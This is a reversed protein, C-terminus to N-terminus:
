AEAATEPTAPTEPETKERPVAEAGSKLDGTIWEFLRGREETSLSFGASECLVAVNRAFIAALALPKGFSCKRIRWMSPSSSTGAETVSGTSSM